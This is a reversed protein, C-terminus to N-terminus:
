LANGLDYTICPNVPTLWLDIQEYIKLPSCMQNSFGKSMAYYKTPYFTLCADTPTM